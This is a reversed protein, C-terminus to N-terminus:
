DGRSLEAAKTEDGLWALYMPLGDAVALVLLEPVQYPHLAPIAAKLAPIREATTKLLILTEPENSVRGDWRFLSQLGPLLSGCAILRQELLAAVFAAADGSAPYSTLALVASM